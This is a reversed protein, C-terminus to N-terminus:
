HTSISSHLRPSVIEVLLIVFIPLATLATLTWFRKWMRATAEYFLTLSLKNESGAIDAWSTITEEKQKFPDATEKRLNKLSEHLNLSDDNGKRKNKSSVKQHFSYNRIMPTSISDLGIGIGYYNAM